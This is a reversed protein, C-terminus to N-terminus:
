ANSVAKPSQNTTNILLNNGAYLADFIPGLLPAGAGLGAYGPPISTVATGEPTGDDVNLDFKYVTRFDGTEFKLAAFYSSNDVSGLWKPSRKIQSVYKDPSGTRDWVTGAAINRIDGHRFNRVFSVYASFPGFQPTDLSARVRYGNKNQITGELRAGVQGDPDRTVVSVAGATANRGFLTGQPGRLVELRAVDPLDFISGRPSSIYVGDLYISVQKDSGAVVGYSNQGRMTFSPVQIGGASPRVTLGPAFSGLDNVTTIRNAQLTEQDVATVAIPVVQLNQERKQATVTIIKIGGTNEEDEAALAPVSTAVCAGAVGLLLSTKLNKM